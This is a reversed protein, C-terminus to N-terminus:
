IIMLFSMPFWNCIATLRYIILGNDINRVKLPLFLKYKQKADTAHCITLKQTYKPQCLRPNIWFQRLQDKPNSNVMCPYIPHPSISIPWHKPGSIAHGRPPYNWQRGDFKGKAIKTIKWRNKKSFFTLITSINVRAGGGRSRSSYKISYKTL